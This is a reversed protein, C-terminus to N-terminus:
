SRLLNILEKNGKLLETLKQRCKYNKSKVVDQNAYGLKKAIEKMTYHQFLAMKLIKMCSDGLRSLLNDMQVEKEKVLLEQFFDETSEHDADIPIRLTRSAYRSIHNLYLNRSVSYLFGDINLMEDIKGTKVRRYFIVVADQFVDKVDDDTGSNRLIYNRIKPLTSKYILALAENDKGKKILDLIQTDKDTMYIYEVWIEHMFYGSM